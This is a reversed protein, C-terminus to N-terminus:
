PILPTCWWMWCWAKNKFMYMWVRKIPPAASRQGLARESELTLCPFTKGSTNGLFFLPHFRDLPGLGPSQSSLACSLRTCDHFRGDHQRIYCAAERSWQAHSGHCCSLLSGANELATQVSWCQGADDCQSVPAEGVGALRSPCDLFSDHCSLPFLSM